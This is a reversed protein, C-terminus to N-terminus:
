AVISHISANPDALCSQLMDPEMCRRGGDPYIKRLGQALCRVGCYVIELSIVCVQCQGLKATQVNISPFLNQFLVTALKLHEEQGFNNLVVLPSTQVPYM